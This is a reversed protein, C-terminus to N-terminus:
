FPIDEDTVETNAYAEEFGDGRGNNGSNAQSHGGQSNGNSDGEGAPKPDLFVLNNVVVDTRYMKKGSNKDEWSRTQNRGEVHIRSGKKVHDRVIEATRNFAVLNHWETKDQWNGQQDKYRETTALSFNVIATGSPTTKFEPEKGVRGLLITKSYSM